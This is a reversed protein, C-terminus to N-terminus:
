PRATVEVVYLDHDSLGTGDVHKANATWADPVAVHDISSGKPLRHPLSRSPVQLGRADLASQISARGGHSGAHEQGELAHNWDGGWVLPLDTPWAARLHAVAQETKDVHRVGEWAPGKCGRWPLISSCFHIGDISAAASAPHPDASAVLPRQSWVAAWHRRPAMDAATAHRNWDSMAARHSVETLLWVDCRQAELLSAHQDSWRGALNWTGVRM